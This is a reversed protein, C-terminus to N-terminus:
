LKGLIKYQIFVTNGNDSFIRVNKRQEGKNCEERKRVREEGWGGGSDRNRKSEKM